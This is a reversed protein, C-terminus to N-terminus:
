ELCCVTIHGTVELAGTPVSETPDCTGGVLNPIAGLPYNVSGIGGPTPACAEEAIAIEVVGPVCANSYPYAVLGGVECSADLSGCSCETCARDDSFSTDFVHRTEYAGAPCQLEGPQWICMPASDEPEPPLCAQGDECTGTADDSAGCLAHARGFALPPVDASPTAVCEGEPQPTRLVWISPAYDSVANCGPELSLSEVVSTTHCENASDGHKELTLETPCQVSSSDCSCSCEAEAGEISDYGLAQLDRWAGTCTPAKDGDASALRVPGQWGDVATPEPICAGSCPGDDDGGTTPDTDSPDGTTPSEGTTPDGTTPDGTTGGDLGASTGSEDDDDPLFPNPESVDCGGLAIAPLLLSLFTRRISRM